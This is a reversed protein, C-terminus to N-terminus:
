GRLFILMPDRVSDSCFQVRAHAKPAMKRNSNSGTIRWGPSYLTSIIEVNKPRRHPYYLISSPGTRDSGISLKQFLFRGKNQPPFRVQSRQSTDMSVGHLLWVWILHRKNPGISQWEDSIQCQTQSKPTTNVSNQEHISNTFFYKRPALSKSAQCVLKSFLILFNSSSTLPLSRFFQIRSRRTTTFGKFLYANQRSM